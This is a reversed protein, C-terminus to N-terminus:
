SEIKCLDKKTFKVTNTAYILDIYHPIKGDIEITKTAIMLSVIM